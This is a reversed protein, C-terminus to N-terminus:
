RAIERNSCGCRKEIGRRYDNRKRLRRAIGTIVFNHDDNTVNSSAITAIGTNSSAITFPGSNGTEGIGILQANAAGTKV